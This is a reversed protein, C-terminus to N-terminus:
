NFCNNILVFSNTTTIKRKKLEMVSEKKRKNITHIHPYSKPQWQTNLCQPKIIWRNIPDKMITFRWINPSKGNQNGDMKM